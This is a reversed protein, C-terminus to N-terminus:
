SRVQCNAGPAGPVNNGQRNALAPRGPGSRSRRSLHAQHPIEAGGPHGGPPCVGLYSFLGRRIRTNRPFNTVYFIIKRSQKGPPSLVFKSRVLGEWFAVQEDEGQEGRYEQFTGIDKFKLLLKERLPHSAERFNIYVLNPRSDEKSFHPDQLKPDYVPPAKRIYKELKSLDGFHLGDTKLQGLNLLGIPVPTLKPHQRDVNVSFWHLLLDNDLM